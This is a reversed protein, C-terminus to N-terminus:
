SIIIVKIFYKLIWCSALFHIFIKKIIFLKKYLMKDMTIKVTVYLKNPIKIITIANQLVRMRSLSRGFLILIFKWVCAYKKNLMIIKSVLEINGLTIKMKRLYIWSALCGFIWYLECYTGIGTVYVMINSCSVWEPMSLPTARRGITM